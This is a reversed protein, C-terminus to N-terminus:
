RLRAVAYRAAVLGNVAGGAPDALRLEVAEAGAPQVVRLHRGSGARLMGQRAYTATVSDPRLPYVPFLDDFTARLNVSRYALRPDVMSVGPLDDLFNALQWAGVLEAFPRGAVAEVNASGAASGALLARTVSTGAVAGDGHHDALWRVFLWGAGREPTSGFSAGPVVLFYSEPDALYDFANLVNVRQFQSARSPADGLAGTGTLYRGGLEEAFHSLAENLWVHEVGGGRVLVRQNFSIMHQFEHIFVRPLERLVAARTHQCAPVAADPVRSYFVESGNSGPEAPLLDLGLFYGLVVGERCDGSLANVADTLLIGVLGDGDVDSERGFATTDLPHIQEDFLAGLTDIEAPTLGGAPVADDLYIAAQRGVYRATASVAVFADCDLDACVQFTRAQGVAPPERLAASPTPGVRPRLAAAAEVQRLRQHFRAPRSRDVTADRLSARAASAGAGGAGELRYSAAIGGGVQVGASAVAVVVYEAGTAAAPLRLCGGGTAPDVLAAQGPALALTASEECGLSPAPSPEDGGGCGALALGGVLAATRMLSTM